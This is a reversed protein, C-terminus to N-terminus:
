NLTEVLNKRAESYTIALPEEEDFRDELNIMDQDEVAHWYRNYATIIKNQEIIRDRQEWITIEFVMTSLAIGFLLFGLNQKFRKTM